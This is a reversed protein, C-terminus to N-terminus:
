FDILSLRTLRRLSSLTVYIEKVLSADSSVSCVRSVGWRLTLSSKALLEGAETRSSLSKMPSCPTAVKM